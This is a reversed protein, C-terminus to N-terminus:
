PLGAAQSPADCCIEVEMHCDMWREIWGDIRKRAEWSGVLGNQKAGKGKQTEETEKGSIVIVSGLFSIHYALM